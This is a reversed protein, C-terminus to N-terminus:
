QVAEEDMYQDELTVKINSRDSYDIEYVNETIFEYKGVKWIPMGDCITSIDKLSGSELLTGDENYLVANMAGKIREEMPDSM